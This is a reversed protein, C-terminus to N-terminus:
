GNRPKTEEICLNKEGGEKNKTGLMELAGRGGAQAPSRQFSSILLLGRFDEPPRLVLIRAGSSLLGWSM